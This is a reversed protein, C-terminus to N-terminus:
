IKQATFPLSLSPVEGSQFVSSPQSSSNNGSSFFQGGDVMQMSQPTADQNYFDYEEDDQQEPELFQAIGQFSNSPWPLNAPWSPVLQSVYRPDPGLL